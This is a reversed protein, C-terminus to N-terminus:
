VIYDLRQEILLGVPLDRFLYKTLIFLLAM